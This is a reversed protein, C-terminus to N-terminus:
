RELLKESLINTKNSEKVIKEQHEKLKRNIVSIGLWGGIEVESFFKNGIILQLM